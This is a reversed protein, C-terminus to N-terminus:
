GNPQSEGTPTQVNAPQQLPQQTQTQDETKSEGTSSAKLQEETIKLYDETTYAKPSQM